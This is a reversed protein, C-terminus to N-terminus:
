ASSPMRSTSLDRPSPSTYLLCIRGEVRRIINEVNAKSPSTTASFDQRLQLFDAIETPLIYGYSPFPFSRTLTPVTTPVASQSIRIWYYTTDESALNTNTNEVGTLTRATWNAPIPFEGVGSENFSYM